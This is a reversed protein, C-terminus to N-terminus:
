HSIFDNSVQARYYSRTHYGTDLPRLKCYENALCSRYKISVMPFVIVADVKNRRSQRCVSHLDILSLFPRIFSPMAFAAFHRIPGRYFQRQLYYLFSCYIGRAAICRNRPSSSIHIEYPISLPLFIFLKRSIAPKIAAGFRVM